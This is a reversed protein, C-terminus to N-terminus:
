ALAGIVRLIAGLDDTASAASAPSYGALSAGVLPLEARVAAIAATRASSGRTPAESAPYEGADAADAM